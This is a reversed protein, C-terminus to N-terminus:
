NNIQLRILWTSTTSTGASNYMYGARQHLAGAARTELKITGDIHFFCDHNGVTAGIEENYPVVYCPGWSQIWQWTSAIVDILTVGPVTAYDVGAAWQSYLKTYESFNIYCSGQGASVAEVLGYDITLDIEGSVRAGAATSSKLIRYSSYPNTRPLLWGGAFDDESPTTDSLGSALIGVLTDGKVGATAGWTITGTGAGHENMNFLGINAKNGLNAIASVFGYYFTREGDVFKTGVPYGQVVDGVSSNAHPNPHSLDGWKGSPEGSIWIPMVIYKGNNAILKQIVPITM